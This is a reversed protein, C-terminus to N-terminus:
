YGILVEIDSHANIVRQRSALMDSYSNCTVLWYHKTTGLTMCQLNRYDFLAEAETTSLHGLM